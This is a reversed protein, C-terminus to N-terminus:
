TRRWCHTKWAKVSLLAISQVRHSCHLRLSEKVAWLPVVRPFYLGTYDGERLFGHNWRMASPLCNWSSPNLSFCSVKEVMAIQFASTSNENLIEPTKKLKAKLTEPVLPKIRKPIGVQPLFASRAPTSLFYLNAQWMDCLSLTSVKYYTASQELLSCSTLWPLNKSDHFRKTQFLGKLDYVSWFGLVALDM